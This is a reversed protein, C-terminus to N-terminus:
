CSWRGRTRQYPGSRSTQLGLGCRPLGFGCGLLLCSSRGRRGFLWSRNRRWAGHCLGRRCLQSCLLNHRHRLYSGWLDLLGRAGVRLGCLLVCRFHHIPPAEEWLWYPDWEGAEHCLALPHHLLNLLAEPLLPLLQLCLAESERVPFVAQPLADLRDGGAVGLLL